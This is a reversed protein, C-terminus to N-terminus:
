TRVWAAVTGSRAAAINGPGLGSTALNRPAGSGVDVLVLTRGAVVAICPGSRVPDPLPGGAGCLVVHLGDPLEGIANLRKARITQTAKGLNRRLQSDQLTEHAAAPFGKM